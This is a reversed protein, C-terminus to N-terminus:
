GSASAGSVPVCAEDRNDNSLSGDPCTMMDWQANSFDAGTLNAGTFYAHDLVANVFTAGQLSAGRLKTGALRARTASVDVLSAGILKTDVMLVDTLDAGVFVSGSLNDHTFEAAHLTSRSFDADPHERM